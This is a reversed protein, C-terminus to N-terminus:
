FSGKHELAWILLANKSAPLQLKKIINSRHNEVTKESIFLLDAIQKSNKETAILSVIKRESPTLLLVKEQATDSEKFILTENLKPSFWENKYKLTDM